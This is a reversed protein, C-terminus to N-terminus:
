ADEIPSFLSIIDLIMALISGWNEFIFQIFDRWDGVGSERAEPKIAGVEIGFETIRKEIERSLLPRFILTAAIRRQQFRPVDREKAADLITRRFKNGM